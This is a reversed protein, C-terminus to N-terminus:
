WYFLIAVVHALLAALLAVALPVHLYRWFQLRANLKIEHRARLVLREKRLLVAYLDRMLEPQENKIYKSGLQLIQRAASITPCNRQKGSLQRLLSGGLRTEQRAKLVLANVEDPLGLAHIRALEDLEAIKHLLDDLTEEGMNLTILRPYNLYAYMGYFGSAIVLLMLVYSLTHVDWGFQFGTHLTALVILSAGLYIHSSLWGQLTGGHSWADKALHRGRDEWRRLSFDPQVSGAQKHGGNKPHPRQYRVRPTRRRAIGYWLLLLVILASVIGLVYGLWTGGYPEDGVPALVYTVIAAVMLMSSLKFYRYHMFNLVGSRQTTNM